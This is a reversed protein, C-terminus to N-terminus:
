TIRVFVISRYMTAKVFELHLRSTALSV